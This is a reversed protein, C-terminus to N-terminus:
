GNAGGDMQGYVETLVRKLLKDTEHIKPDFAIEVSRDWHWNTNIPTVHYGYFDVRAGALSFWNNIAHTWPQAKWGGLWARSPDLAWKKSINKAAWGKKRVFFEAHRPLQNSPARINEIWLRNFKVTGWLSREAAKFISRRFPSVVLEDIDVNLISRAQMGYKRLAQTFMPPQAFYAWHGKNRKDRYEYNHMGFPHVWPVVLTTKIGEVSSIAARLEDLTYLTSGNDYLLIATAGHEKVYFEAWDKLWTLHNNKNISLLLRQGKFLDSHNPQIQVEHRQGAFELAITQDQKPLAVRCIVAQLAHHIQLKTKTGSQLGTVTLEELVPELSIAVPGILYVHRGNRSRFVDYFLSRHDFKEAFGERTGLEPTHPLRRLPQNEDLLVPSSLAEPPTASAAKDKTGAQPM